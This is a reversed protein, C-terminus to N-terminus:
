TVEVDSFVCFSGSGLCGGDDVGSGVVGGDPGDVLLGEGWFGDGVGMRGGAFVGM